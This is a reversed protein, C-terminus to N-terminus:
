SSQRERAVTDNVTVLWVVRFLFLAATHCCHPPLTAASNRCVQRFSHFSVNGGISPIATNNKLCLFQGRRRRLPWSQSVQRTSCRATSRQAEQRRRKKRTARGPKGGAMGNCADQKAHDVRAAVAASTGAAASFALSPSLAPLRSPQSSEQRHWRLLFFIHELSLLAAVGVGDVHQSLLSRYCAATVGQSEISM